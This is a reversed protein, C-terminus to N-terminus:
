LIYGYLHTYFCLVVYTNSLLIYIDLLCKLLFAQILLTPTPSLDNAFM